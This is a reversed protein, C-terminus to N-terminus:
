QEPEQIKNYDDEVTKFYEEASIIYNEVAKMWTAMDLYSNYPLAMHNLPERDGNEVKQLEVGINLQTIVEWKNFDIEAIQDPKRPPQVAIRVM